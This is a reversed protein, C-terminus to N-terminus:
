TATLVPLIFAKLITKTGTFTTTFKTKATQVRAPFIRKSLLFAATGPNTGVVLGFLAFKTLILIARLNDNTATLKSTTLLLLKITVKLFNVVRLQVQKLQSMLVITTLFNIVLFISM